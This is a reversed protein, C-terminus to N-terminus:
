ITSSKKLRITGGQKRRISLSRGRSATRRRPHNRGRRKRWNTAVARYYILFTNVCVQTAGLHELVTTDVFPTYFYTIDHLFCICAIEDVRCGINRAAAPLPPLSFFYDVRRIKSGTLLTAVCTAFLSDSSYVTKIVVGSAVLPLRQPHWRLQLEHQLNTALDYLPYIADWLLSKKM